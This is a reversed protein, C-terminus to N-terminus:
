PIQENLPQPWSSRECWQQLALEAADRVASSSDATAEWLARQALPSNGAALARAAAARVFQDEDSLLGIVLAEVQNAARMAEAAELARLRRTRTPSKLESALRAIAEPDVQLVLRGTHQRTADDMVDFASLYREMNFEGLSAQAAQRVVEHPSELAGIVHRIAGPIGRRRLQAILHAQVQPDPDELGQLVLQNAEAGGCDALAAAAARRGVPQGQTLIRKLVEFVALRNMGSGIALQVAAHQEDATLADLVHLDRALWAVSDM